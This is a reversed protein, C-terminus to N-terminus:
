TSEAAAHEAPIFLEDAPSSRRPLRAVEGGLAAQAGAAPVWAGGEDDSAVRRQREHRQVIGFTPSLSQERDLLELCEAKEAPPLQTGEHEMSTRMHTLVRQAELPLSGFEQRSEARRMGEYMTSDLNVENASAVFKEDPHVNRTSGFVSRCLEAADAIRCLRNSASDVASVLALPELQAAGALERRAEGVATPFDLLAELGEIGLLCPRERQFFFVPHGVGDCARARGLGAGLRRPRAAVSGRAAPRM